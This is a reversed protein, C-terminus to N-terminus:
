QLMIASILRGGAGLFAEGLDKGSLSLNYYPSYIIVSSDVLFPRNFM